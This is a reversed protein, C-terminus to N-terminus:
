NPASPRLAKDPSLMDNRQKAINILKLQDGWMSCIQLLLGKCQKKRAHYQTSIAVTESWVEKLQAIIDQKRRVRQDIPSEWDMRTQLTRNWSPQPWQWAEGTTINVIWYPKKSQM